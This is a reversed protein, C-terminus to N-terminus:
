RLSETYKAIAVIEHDKLVGKFPTMLGKGHYVQAVSEQLSIKSKTLDKAGNVMMDGKIGHCISCFMKFKKKADVSEIQKDTTSAILEEAKKLQEPTAGEDQTEAEPSKVSKTKSDQNPVVAEETKPREKKPAKKTNDPGCSGLLSVSITLIIIVIHKFSM